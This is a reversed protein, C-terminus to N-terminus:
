FKRSTQVTTTHRRTPVRKRSVSLVNSGIENGTKLLSYKFNYLTKNLRFWFHEHRTAFLGVVKVQLRRPKNEQKETPNITEFPSLWGYICRYSGQEVYYTAIRPYQNCYAAADAGFQDCCTTKCGNKRTYLLLVSMTDAATKWFIRRIYQIRTPWVIKLWIIKVISACLIASFPWLISSRSGRKM